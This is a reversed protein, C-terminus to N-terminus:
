KKREILLHLVITILMLIVFELITNTRDLDQIRNEMWNDM